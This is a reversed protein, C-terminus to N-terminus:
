RQVLLPTVLSELLPLTVEAEGAKGDKRLIGQRDVVFTSPMRWIRGLGKFNAESKVAIPFTFNGAVIRVKPLDRSDDMSIALIELGEAKHKEYYAQLAPMEAICPACWTAWFNVIVVKGRNASLRFQAPSDLLKAEIEPAPSGVAPGASFVPFSALLCCVLLVSPRMARM